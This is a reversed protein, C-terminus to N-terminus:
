ATPRKKKALEAQRIALLELLDEDVDDEYRALADPHSINLLAGVQAVKKAMRKYIKITTQEEDDSGDPAESKKERAMANTVV